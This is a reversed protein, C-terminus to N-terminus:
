RSIQMAFAMNDDPHYNFFAGDGRPRHRVADIANEQRYETPLVAAHLCDSLALARLQLNGDEPRQVLEPAVSCAGPLILQSAPSWSARGTEGRLCWSLDAPYRKALYWWDQGVASKLVLILIM